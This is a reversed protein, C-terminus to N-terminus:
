EIRNYDLNKHNNKEEILDTEIINKTIDEPIFFTKIECRGFNTKWKRKLILIDIEAETELGSTEYLRIIFGEKDESKKFVTAIVNECSIRIGQLKQPLKGEHFTEPIQIFQTNLQFAKKVISSDQWKKRHPVIVYKFEQIGQDMVECIENRVGTHDAYYSSNVVTIRIDNEKIDYGYKCNNLISLGYNKGDILGSLDVWNLGPEEEGNVPRAIHGYPIESTSRPNEINVPFSLKLMKNRERWDLRASVEIDPKYNYVAFDQQLTSNSFRNKVRIKSRIPGNEIVKIEADSFKGIEKRFSFIGHAWTDCHDIDIVLPVAGLDKLINRNDYKDIYKKIYGNTKDIELIIFSNEIINDEIKLFKRKSGAKFVKKGYTWFVRYGMPPLKAIFLCNYRGLGNLHPKSMKQIDLPSGEEDTVGSVERNIQIVTTVEWSLPNFVILPTGCEETEWTLWNKKKIDKIPNQKSTDISWSIKQVASNLSKASLSLAEGYMEEADEYADKISCGCLIDHFQNFMVNEWARDFNQKPYEFGTLIRAISAMKEATLLRNEVKRNFYKIKSM